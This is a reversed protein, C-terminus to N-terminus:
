YVEQVPVTCNTRVWEGDYESIETRAGNKIYYSSPTNSFGTRPMKNWIMEDPCEKLLKQGSGSKYKIYEILNLKETFCIADPNIGCHVEGDYVRLFVALLVLILIAIFIKM